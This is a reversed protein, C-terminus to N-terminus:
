HHRHLAVGPLAKVSQKDLKLYVIDDEIHDIAAVPITLEKQGWLHGERMVLHSVYCTEADVLFEDVRGVRGDIAEVVAGRHFGLEDHPIQEVGVMLESDEAVTYPWHYGDNITTLAQYMGYESDEPGVFQSTLFPAMAVLEKHTCRLQIQQPTSSTILDVPVMYEQGLLGKTKIVVHTVQKYIPNVIICVSRGETGDSCRVAANLPIDM